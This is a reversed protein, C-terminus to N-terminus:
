DFFTFSIMKLTSKMVQEVRPTKLAHISPSIVCLKWSFM